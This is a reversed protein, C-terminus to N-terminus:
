VRESNGGLVRESEWGVGVRESWGCVSVGM